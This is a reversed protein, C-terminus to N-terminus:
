EAGEPGYVQQYGPVPTGGGRGPKQHGGLHPAPSPGPPPYGPLYDTTGPPYPSSYRFM